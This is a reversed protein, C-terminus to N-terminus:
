LICVNEIIKALGPRMAFVMNIRANGEIRLRQSKGIDICENEGLHPHRKHNEWSKTPAIVVLSSILAGIALLRDYLMCPLHNSLSPWELGSAELTSQLEHTMSYYSSAKDNANDLLGGKALEFYDLVDNLHVAV